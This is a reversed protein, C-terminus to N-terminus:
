SNLSPLMLRVRKYSCLIDCCYCGWISSDVKKEWKESRRCWFTSISWRKPERWSPQLCKLSSLINQIVGPILKRFRNDIELIILSASTATSFLNSRNRFIFFYQHIVHWLRHLAATIQYKVVIIPKGVLLIDLESWRATIDGHYSLLHKPSPHRNLWLFLEFVSFHKHRHHFYFFMQLLQIDGSSSKHLVLQGFGPLLFM